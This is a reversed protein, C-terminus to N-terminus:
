PIKNTNTNKKYPKRGETPTTINAWAVRLTKSYEKLLGLRSIAYLWSVLPSLYLDVTKISVKKVRNPSKVPLINIQNPLIIPNPILIIGINAIGNAASKEKIPKLIELCM